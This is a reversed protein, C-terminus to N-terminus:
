GSALGVVILLLGVVGAGAAAYYLNRSWSAASQTLERESRRSILFRAKTDQPNRALALQGQHDVACGLIYVQTGVALTTEVLRQGLDRTRSRRAPAADFRNATEVLDLDAGEPVVLARGTRDRVWFNVQREQNELTESRRQTQTSTKGDSDTSTVDEEYERTVVYTYAVCATSSLPATLPADCEIVGEIDCPQALADAGLAATVQSHLDSLMQASYNDAASLARLKGSQSRAIFYCVVAVILLLIGGIIM